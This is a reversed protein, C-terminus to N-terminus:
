NYQKIDIRAKWSEITYTISVFDHKANARPQMYRSKFKYAYEEIMRATKVKDIDQPFFHNLFVTNIPNGYLMEVEQTTARRTSWIESLMQNIGDRLAYRNGEELIGHFDWCYVIREKM